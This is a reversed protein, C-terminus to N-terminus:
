AGWGCSIRWPLASVLITIILAVIIPVKLDNKSSAYVIGCGIITGLIVFPPACMLSYYGCDVLASLTAVCVSVVFVAKYGGKKTTINM